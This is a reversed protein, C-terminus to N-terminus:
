NRENKLEKKTKRIDYKKLLEGTAWFFAKRTSCGLEDQIERSRVMLIREFQKNTKKTKM